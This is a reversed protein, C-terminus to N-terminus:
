EESTTEGSLLRLLFRYQTKYADAEHASNTYPILIEEMEEDTTASSMSFLRSGADLELLEVPQVSHRREHEMTSLAIAEVCRATLKHSKCVGRLEHAFTEPVYVIKGALSSILNLAFRKTIGYEAYQEDSVGEYQKLNHEILKKSIEGAFCVATIFERNEDFLQDYTPEHGNNCWYEYKVEKTFVVEDDRLNKLLTDTFYQMMEEDSAIVRDGNALAADNIRKITDWCKNFYEFGTM